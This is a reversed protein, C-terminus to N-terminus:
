IKWKLGNVDRELELSNAQACKTSHAKHRARAIIDDVVKQPILDKLRFKALGVATDGLGVYTVFEDDLGNKGPIIETQGGAFM